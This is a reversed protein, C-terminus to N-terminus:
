AAELKERRNFEAFAERAIREVKKVRDAPIPSGKGNAYGSISMGKTAIRIREEPTLDSFAVRFMKKM